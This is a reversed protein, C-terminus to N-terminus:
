IIIIRDESDVAEEKAEDEVVIFSFGDGIYLRGDETNIFLHGEKPELEKIEEPRKYGLFLLKKQKPKTSKTKKTKKKSKPKEVTEWIMSPKPPWRAEREDRYAERIKSRIDQAEEIQSEKYNQYKEIIEELTEKKNNEKPLQESSEWHHQIAYVVDKGAGTPMPMHLKDEGLESLWGMLYKPEPYSEDM